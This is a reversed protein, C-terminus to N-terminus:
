ALSYRLENALHGPSPSMGTVLLAPELIGYFDVFQAMRADEETMKAERRACLDIVTMGDRRDDDCGNIPTGATDACDRMVHTGARRLRAPAIM